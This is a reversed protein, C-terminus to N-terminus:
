DLYPNIRPGGCHFSRATVVPGGHCEGLQVHKCHIILYMQCVCMGHSVVVVCVGRGCAPSKVGCRCVCLTTRQRATERPRQRQRGAGVPAGWVCVGMRGVRARTAGICLLGVGCVFWGGGLHNFTAWGCFWVGGGGGGGGGVGGDPGGAGEHGRYGVVGWGVRVGGGGWGLVSVRGCVGGM